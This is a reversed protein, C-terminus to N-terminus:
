EYEEGGIDRDFADGELYEHPYGSVGQLQSIFRMDATSLSIGCGIKALKDVYENGEVGTHGTVHVFDIQLGSEERCAAVFNQYAKTYPENAKWNKNAWAGIGNYDFYVTTSKYEPHRLVWELAVTAGAIEGEINRGGSTCDGNGCLIHKHNGDDIYVGYGYKNTDANYSGDVYIDVDSTRSSLVEAQQSYVEGLYSSAAQESDFKKFEAGSYGKVNAECEEWTSYIGPVRGQKVAYCKAM